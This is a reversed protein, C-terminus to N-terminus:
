SAIEARRRGEAPLSDKEPLEIAAYPVQLYQRRHVQVLMVLWLITPCLAKLSYPKILTQRLYYGGLLDSYLFSTLVFLVFFFINLRKTKEQLLYWICMGAVAPLYTAAESGNSFLVIFLLLSSLIYFRYRIDKWDRFHLLQSFFLLAGGAFIPTTNMAPNFIRSIMGMVSVNQDISERSFASNQAAKAQLSNYWDIYSQVIFHPSSILMPLVFFLACWVLGWAIFKVKNRSFLFFLCGVISYIKIFAGFLIFFLAWHKKGRETYAFGLLICACTLANAQLQGTNMMLEHACLLTLALQASATLPLRRIAFLLIAANFLVWLLVGAWNPLLAFPAIVVSFFPGYHNMDGYESPYEAYLNKGDLTHWFVYRFIHYNNISGEDAALHQFAVFLSLGFWLGLVWWKAAPRDLLRALFAPVPALTKEM